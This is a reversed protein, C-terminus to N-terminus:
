KEIQLEVSTKGMDKTEGSATIGHVLLAYTGAEWQQGPVEVAFEDEGAKAPITLRWEVKGSPDEFEAQYTSISPDSVRLWLLFGKGQGVAVTKSSASYTGFNAAAWTLARPQRLAAEQRPYQILNQYGIVALLLAMAPAAFAPQFWAFWQSRARRERPDERVPAEASSALVVKSHAVFQNGAAVDLACEQCCFFHEEFEDRMTSDLEDLLYKETLKDRVVAEHDMTFGGRFYQASQLMTVNKRRPLIQLISEPM